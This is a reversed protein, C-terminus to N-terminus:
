ETAREGKGSEMHMARDTWRGLILVIVGALVLCLSNRSGCWNLPLDYRRGVRSLMLHRVIESHKQRTANMVTLM